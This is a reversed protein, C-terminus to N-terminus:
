SMEDNSMQCILRPRSVRDFKKKGGEDESRGSPM